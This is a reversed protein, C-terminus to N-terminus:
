VLVFSLLSLMGVTIVGRIMKTVPPPCPEVKRGHCGSPYGLQTVRDIQCDSFIAFLRTCYWAHNVPEPQWLRVLYSVLQTGALFRWHSQPDNPLSQCCYFGQHLLAEGIM